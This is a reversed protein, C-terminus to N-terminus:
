QGTKRRLLELQAQAQQRLTENQEEQAVIRWAAIAENYLNAQEYLLALRRHCELCKGDSLRIARLLIRRAGELNGRDALRKSRNILREINQAPSLSGLRARMLVAKAERSGPTIELASEAERLAQERNGKALLAEAMLWRGEANIPDWKLVESAYSYTKDIDGTAWALYALLLNNLEPTLTHALLKNSHAVALAFARSRIVSLEQDAIKSRANANSISETLLSVFLFQYAGTPEVSRAASQGHRAMADFDRTRSSVLAQKIEMDGQLLDASYWMALVCTCVTLGIGLRPWSKLSFASLWYAAGNGGAGNTKIRARGVIAIKRGQNAPTQTFERRRELKLRDATVGTGVVNSAIQALAIFAFFYLGTSIQDYIFFNHVLVAVLSAVLGTIILKMSSAAARRRARIFLTLASAIMAIYLIAGPLGYSIAADLYSNHSSESNIGPSLRALEKSKYSLFEKRFGEPGTGIVSFGPVMRTSDRWLITRGSGTLGEATLSRIRAIFLNSAPSLSIIWILAPLIVFCLAVKRATIVRGAKGLINTDGSLEFAAFTIIGAFLGLWAGRAGSCGIAAISLVVTATALHRAHGTTALALSASLPTTYLLFNGLYNSHGLTGAVRLQAGSASNLTYMSSPVFPDIGFYQVVAYLSVPLGTLAIAWLVQKLRPENINAGLILGIFCVFFCLHTILGMQNYVSGFLSAMPAVGFATSISVALFYLCVLMVHNSKLLNLSTHRSAKITHFLMLPVLASSGILLLLFKPLVYVRYVATTLALPVLILLSVSLFFVAFSSRVTFGVLSKNRRDHKETKHRPM